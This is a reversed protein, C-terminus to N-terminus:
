GGDINVTLQSLVLEFSRCDPHLPSTIKTQEFGLKRLLGKSSENSQATMALVKSFLPAAKMQELVAISAEYGYGKGQFKDKFAFGLDPFPLSDRKLLGCMGIPEKSSKVSVKYLGFGWESYQKMPGTQLYHIADDRTRVAKDGIQTIFSPENLLEIVFGADDLTLESLFLRQTRFTKM